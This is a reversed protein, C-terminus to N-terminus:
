QSLLERIAPHQWETNSPCVCLHKPPTPPIPTPPCHTTRQISKTRCHLVPLSKIEFILTKASPSEQNWLHSDQVWPKLKWSNSWGRLRWRDWLHSIPDRRALKKINLYDLSSGSARKTILSGGKPVSRDPETVTTTFHCAWVNFSLHFCRWENKRLGDQFHNHGPMPSWIFEAKLNPM